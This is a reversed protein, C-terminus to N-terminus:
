ASVLARYEDMDGWLREVLDNLDAHGLETPDDYASVLLVHDRILDRFDGKLKILYVDDIGHQALFQVLREPRSGKAGLERVLAGGFRLTAFGHRFSEFLYSKIDNRLDVMKEDEHGSVLRQQGYYKALHCAAFFATRRDQVRRPRFPHNPTKPLRILRYAEGELTSLLGALQRDYSDFGVRTQNQQEVSMQRHFRIPLPDIPVLGEDTPPSPKLVAVMAMVRDQDVLTAMGFLHRIQDHREIHGKDDCLSVLLSGQLLQNTPLGFQIRLLHDRSVEAIGEGSRGNGSLLAKGSRNIELRYRFIEPYDNPNRRETMYLDYTGALRALPRARTINKLEEVAQSDTAAALGQQGSLYQGVEQYQSSQCFTFLDLDAVIPDAQKQLVVRGSTPHTFSHDFGAYVGLLYRNDTLGGELFYHLRYAGNEYDFDLDVRIGHNLPSAFGQLRPHKHQTPYRCDVRGARSIKCSFLTVHGTIPHVFFGQYSDAVEALLWANKARPLADFSEVVGDVPVDVRQGLLFHFVDDPISEPNQIYQRILDECAEVSAQRWWVMLGAAPHAQNFKGSLSAFAGVYIPAKDSTWDLTIQTWVGTRKQGPADVLRLSLMRGDSPNSETVVTKHAGDSYWYTIETEVWSDDLSNAGASPQVLAYGVKEKTKKRHPRWYFALFCPQGPTPAPSGGGSPETEVQRPKRGLGEKKRLRGAHTDIPQNQNLFVLQGNQESVSLRGGSKAILYHVLAITRFKLWKIPRLRSQEINPNLLYSLNTTSITDPEQHSIYLLSKYPERALDSYITKQSIRLALVFARLGLVVERRNPHDFFSASDTDDPLYRQLLEEVTEDRHVGEDTFTKTM